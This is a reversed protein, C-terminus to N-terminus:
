PIKALISSPFLSCNCTEERGDQWRFVIAIPKGTTFHRITQVAEAELCITSGNQISSMTDKASIENM